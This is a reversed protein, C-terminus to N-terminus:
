EFYLDILTPDRPGALPELNLLGSVFFTTGPGPWYLGFVSNALVPCYKREFNLLEPVALKYM